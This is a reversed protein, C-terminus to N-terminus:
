LYKRFISMLRDRSVEITNKEASKFANTVLSDRLVENNVIKKVNEVIQVSSGPSILLGNIRDKVVDTIGGVKTAIVPLGAMMAEYLTKPIGEAFSPLIFIDADRYHRILIEGYPIYNLWKIYKNIKLKNALEKILVEKDESGRQASGIIHLNYRKVSNTNLDSLARFLCELGKEPEIRGVFLLNIKNKFCSRKRMNIKSKEIDSREILSPSIFNVKLSYSSYLSYLESGVVLTHVRKCLFINIRHMLKSYLSAVLGKIGKYRVTIDNLINGRIHYFIPVEYRKAKLYALIGLPHPGVIWMVDCTKVGKKLVRNTGKIVHILKKVLEIVNGFYPLSYLSIYKSCKYYDKFNIKEKRSPAFIIIEDFYDSFSEIFRIFSIDTFINKKNVYFGQNIFVGLKM